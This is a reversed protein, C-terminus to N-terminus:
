KKTVVTTKTVVKKVAAKDSGACCAKTGAKATEKTCKAECNAKEKATMNKCEAATKGKCCEATKGKSCAPTVAKVETKSPTTKSVTKTQANISGFSVFIAILSLIAIKKKM